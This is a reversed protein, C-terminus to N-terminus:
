EMAVRIEQEAELEMIQAIRLYEKEEPEAM